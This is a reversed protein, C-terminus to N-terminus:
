LVRSELGARHVPGAGGARDGVVAATRRAGAGPLQPQTSVAAGRGLGDTLRDRDWRRGGTRLQREPDPDVGRLGRRRRHVVGRLNLDDVTRGRARQRRVRVQVLVRRVHLLREVHRLVLALGDRHPEDALLIGRQLRAEDDVVGRQGHASDVGSDDPAHAARRGPGRAGSEKRGFSSRIRLVRYGASPTASTAPASNPGPVTTAAASDGSMETVLALACRSWNWDM